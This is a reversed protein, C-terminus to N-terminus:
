GFWGASVSVVRPALPLLLGVLQLLVQLDELGRLRVVWCELLPLLGLDGPWAARLHRVELLRPSLSLRCFITSACVCVCVRGEELDSGPLGCACVCVCVYGGVCVYETCVCM